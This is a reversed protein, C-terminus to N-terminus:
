SFAQFEDIPRLVVKGSHSKIYIIKGTAKLYELAAETEPFENQLTLHVWNHNVSDHYLEDIRHLVYDYM